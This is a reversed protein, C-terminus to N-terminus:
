FHLAVGTTAALTSPRLTFEDPGNTGNLVIKEGVGTYLGEVRVSVNSTVFTEVGVGVQYGALTRRGTTNPAINNWYDWDTSMGIWAPGGKAYILTSSSALWGARATVALVDDISGFHYYTGYYGSSGFANLFDVHDYNASVEAGVVYRQAFQYNAGLFGGGGLVFRAFPGTEGQNTDFYTMKDGNVSAFGGVEFGTWDPASTGAAPSSPAQAGWGAPADFKYEAGVQLLLISPTYRDSDSELSLSRAAATYSAEARLAINPRVLTEVGFGAQVAALDRNFTDGFNEFGKVNIWAPGIKGYVLTDPRMLIGARAAVAGVYNSRELLDYTSGLERYSADGFWTQSAEVGVVAWPLAQYNFGVYLGFAGRPDISGIWTDSYSTYIPPPRNYRASAADEGIAGGIYFGTWNVVPGPPAVPPAASPQPAASAFSIAGLPLAAIALCRFFAMAVSSSSFVTRM